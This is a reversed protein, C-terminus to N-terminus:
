KKILYRKAGEDVNMMSIATSTSPSTTPPSPSQSKSSKSTQLNPSKSIQLNPSKSIQLNPSKSNQLNPSKSNQLKPTKSNETRCRCGAALYDPLDSNITIPDRSVKKKTRGMRIAIGVLWTKGTGSETRRGIGDKEWIRSKRKVRERERRWGVDRGEQV